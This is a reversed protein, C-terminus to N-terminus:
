RPSVARPIRIRCTLPRGAPTRLRCRGLRRDGNRARVRVVGAQGSRASVLLFRGDVVAGVGQLGADPETVSPAPAAEIAALEAATAPAPQPPPPNTIAITVEDFAGSIRRRASRSPQGVAAGARPRPLPRDPRRQRGAGLRGLHRRDDVERAPQGRDRERVAAREHGRDHEGSRRLARRETFRRRREAHGGRRRSLAPVHECQRPGRLQVHGPRGLRPGPHLRREVVLVDPRKGPESARPAAARHDQVRARRPRASHHRDRPQDDDPGSASVVGASVPKARYGPITSSATPSRAPMSRTARACSTTPTSRRACGTSAPSCTPSTSGSSRSRATTSTAGAPPCARSSARARPSTRAASTTRRPPTSARRRARQDRDPHQRDPLLRGEAGARGRRDQRLEVALLAGREEPALPQPRRRAGLHDAPRPERRRLLQRRQPVRAARHPDHRDRGAALRADRVGRRGPQPRLRRLAAAPAHHRGPARLDPHDPPRARRRGPRAAARDGDPRLRGPRGARM